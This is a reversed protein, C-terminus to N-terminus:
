IGAIVLGVAAALMFAPLVAILWGLGAPRGTRWSSCGSRTRRWGERWGTLREWEPMGTHRATRTFAAFASSLQPDHVRMRNELADLIRQQGAPLGM